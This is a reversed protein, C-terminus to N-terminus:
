ASYNEELSESLTIRDLRAMLRAHTRRRRLNNFYNEKLALTKRM